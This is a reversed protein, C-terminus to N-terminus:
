RAFNQPKKFLIKLIKEASIFDKSKGNFVKFVFFFDKPIQGSKRYLQFFIRNENRFRARRLYALDQFFIRYSKEASIPAGIPRYSTWIKVFFDAFNKVGFDASRPEFRMLRHRKTVKKKTSAAHRRRSQHCLHPLESILADTFTHWIFNNIDRLSKFSWYTTWITM